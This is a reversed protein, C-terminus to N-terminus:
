RRNFVEGATRLCEPCFEQKFEEPNQRVYDDLPQWEGDAQHIKRCHRCVPLLGSLISVESSLRRTQAATRAVLWAFSALVSMRIVANVSSAMLTWPPDWLTIFYLRVLPLVIALALALTRSGHWAALSVPILYVIPFQIFPGLRYDVALCVASLAICGLDLLWTRPLISRPPM